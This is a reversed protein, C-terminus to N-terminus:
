EVRLIYMTIYPGTCKLVSTRFHVPVIEISLFMDIPIHCKKFGKGWTM